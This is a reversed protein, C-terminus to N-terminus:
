EFLAKNLFKIFEECEYCNGLAGDRCLECENKSEIVKEQEKM